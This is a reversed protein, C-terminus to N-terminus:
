KKLIQFSDVIKQAAPLERDFQSLTNEYRTYYAKNGVITGIELDKYKYDNVKYSYVVKYAPLTGLTINNKNVEIIKFGSLDHRYVSTVYAYYQGLNHPNSLSDVFINIAASKYFINPFCLRGPL